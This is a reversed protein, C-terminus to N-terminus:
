IEMKDETLAEYKANEEWGLMRLFAVEEDSIVVENPGSNQGGEDAFIEFENCADGNGAAVHSYADGNGVAVHICSDGNGAVFM